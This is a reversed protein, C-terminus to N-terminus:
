LYGFAELFALSPWCFAGLSVLIDGLCGLIAVIRGFSGWFPGLLAWYLGLPFESFGQVPALSRERLVPSPLPPASARGLPRPPPRCTCAISAGAGAPLAARSLAGLSSEM